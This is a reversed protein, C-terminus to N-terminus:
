LNELDIKTLELKKMPVNVTFMKAGCPCAGEDIIYKGSVRWYAVSFVYSETKAKKSLIPEINEIWIKM